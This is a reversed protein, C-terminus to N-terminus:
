HSELYCKECEVSAGGIKELPKRLRETAQRLTQKNLVEQSEKLIKWYIGDKDVVGNGKYM